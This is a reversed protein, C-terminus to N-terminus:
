LPLVLVIKVIALSLDRLCGTFLSFRGFFLWHGEITRLFFYRHNVLGLSLEIQM